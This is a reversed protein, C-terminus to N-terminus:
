ANIMRKLLNAVRGPDDAVMMRMVAIKDEYTNATNLMDEPISSRKPMLRSKIEELNGDDGQRIREVDAASLEGDAARAGAGGQRGATYYRIAPRVVTFLTLLVLFVAILTQALYKITPDQTYEQVMEFTTKPPEEINEMGRNFSSTVVTVKDGREENYGIVGEILEKFEQKRAEIDVEAGDAGALSRPDVVVSVTVRDITGVQQKVYRIERDLEYNRTTSSSTQTANESVETAAPTNVFTGVEADGGSRSEQQDQNVSESRTKGGENDRDFDEYTTEVATFNLMVDVQANINEYGVISGLLEDIRTRYTQEISLEHETQSTTLSMADDIGQPGSLLMGKSDIVAVNESPLYPISSSVLHIIAQINSDTLKRGSYTEIYVSAKAPARNKIFPSQQPEAIHVRVKRVHSIQRITQELERQLQSRILGQEMNKSTTMSSNELLSEFGGGSVSRPINQSALFLKASFYKDEPVMLQGTNTDLYAGYEGGALLADYAVQRESEPLESFLPRGVPASVYSYIFALAALSFLVVIAPLTRQVGPQNLISRIIPENAQSAPAPAVNPAAVRNPTAPALAQNSPELASEAM